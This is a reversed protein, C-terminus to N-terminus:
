GLDCSSALSFECLLVLSFHKTFLAVDAKMLKAFKEMEGAVTNIAKKAAKIRSPGLNQKVKNIEITSINAKVTLRNLVRAMREVTSQVAKFADEGQELLDLFGDEGEESASAPGGASSAETAGCAATLPTKADSNSSRPGWTQGWERVQRSLHMRLFSAFSEDDTFKWYYAGQEGLKTQFDRIKSLQAPDLESMSQPPAEKFYFM